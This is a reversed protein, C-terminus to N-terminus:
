ADDIERWLREYHERPLRRLLLSLGFGFWIGSLGVEWLHAGDIGQYGRVTLPILLSLVGLGAYILVVMRNLSFRNLGRDKLSKLRTEWGAADAEHFVIIYAAAKANAQGAYWTLAEASGLLFLLLSSVLAWDLKSTAETVGDLGLIGTVLSISATLIVFRRNQWALMEARLAEYEANM